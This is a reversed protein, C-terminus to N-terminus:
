AVFECSVFSRTARPDILVCAEIDFMVVMGIVMDPTM